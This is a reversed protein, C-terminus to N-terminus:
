LQGAHELLQQYYAEPDSNLLGPKDRKLAMELQVVQHPVTIGTWNVYARYFPRSSKKQGKTASKIGQQLSDLVTDLRDPNEINDLADELQGVAREKERALDPSVVWRKIQKLRNRLSHRDKLDIGIHEIRLLHREYKTRLTETLGNRIAWTRFQGLWQRIEDVAIGRSTFFQESLWIRLPKNQGSDTDKGHLVIAYQLQEMVSLANLAVDYAKRGNDYVHLVGMYHALQEMPAMIEFPYDSDPNYDCNAAMVQSLATLAECAESRAHVRMPKPVYHRDNRKTYPVYGSRRLEVLDPNRHWNHSSVRAVVKSAMGRPVACSLNPQYRRHLKPLGKRLANAKGRRSQRSKILTSSEVAILNTSTM